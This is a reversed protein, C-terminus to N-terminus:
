GRAPGGAGARDAAGPALELGDLPDAVVALGRVHEDELVVTLLGAIDDRVRAADGRGQRRRDQVRDGSPEARAPPPFVQETAHTGKGATSGAATWGRRLVHQGTVSTVSTRSTM